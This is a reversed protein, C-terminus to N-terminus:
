DEFLIEIHNEDLIKITWFGIETSYKETTYSFILQSDQPLDSLKNIFQETTCM